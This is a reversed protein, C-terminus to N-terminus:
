KALRAFEHDAIVYCTSGAQHGVVARASMALPRQTAAVRLSQTITSLGRKSKIACEGFGTTM